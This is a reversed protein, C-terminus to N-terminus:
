LPKVSNKRHLEVDDDSEGEAPADAGAMPQVTGKKKHLEVDDEGSEQSPDDTVPRRRERDEVVNRRRHNVFRRGV